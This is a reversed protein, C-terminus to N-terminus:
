WFERWAVKAKDSKLDDEVFKVVNLGPFSEKFDKYITDDSERSGSLKLLAPDVACLLNWYVDAHEPTPPTLHACRM